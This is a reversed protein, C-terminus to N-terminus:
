NKETGADGTDAAEAEEAGEAPTLIEVAREFRVLRGRKLICTGKGGRSAPKYSTERVIVEADRNTWTKLGDRKRTSLQFALVRDYGELKIANVGKAANARPPIECVAFILVHADETALTVMEDGACAYVALASDDSALSVFKRGAKTSIERHGALPFRVAKGQRTICVAFPPRPDEETLTALDVEAPTPLLKTDSCSVGIIKEGDGFSFFTQVADGYGTTAPIADVRMVYASGTQTYFTVTQRTDTRLVWGVEDGEPVRIASVDSFGKQRKMRGGRSVIVWTNEKIIYAEPDFNTAAPPGVLKTRRADGYTNGIEIIESRVLRWRADVDALLAEIREAEARKAALEEQIVLIELRALRYLRLELIADVQTESLGFRVMMKDAADAKGDSARIIRITEDLADFIIAFGELIHIRERLKELQHALRRSVVELRFDLFHRLMERLGVRKPIPLHTDESPVLCTMNVHFAQQLPTHKYLYAMAVEPEEGRKLEIVVRVDDTSEDRIDVLQPVKRAEILQGIKEVLTGKDTAYPISHIIVCRKRNVIETTYEGRLRVPGQGTLLIHALEEPTNLIEGGTPFDPGPVLGFLTEDPVQPDDILAILAQTIETLNHPPINTALGVAIGMAGNVLLNPLQAPLVIPENHQGDYNPRFDVTDQKLETLLEEALPRLKCETYRMAAAADGDLSGFNGQGDILPYRLSFPQALRVMAEYISSDGHPHYKGMVEGVVAACKRYRAEATLGMQFMGFLIRRQVPKLGDRVDPLARSTVVSLAYNLYRRRAAEVLGVDEVGGAEGGGEGGGGGGGSRGDFLKLQMERDGSWFRRVPVVHGIV